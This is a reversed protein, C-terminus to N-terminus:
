QGNPGGSLDLLTDLFGWWGCSNKHNCSATRCNHPNLWFWVSPRACLPCRIRSAKGGAIRAELREAARERVGPDQNLRHQAIRRARDPRASVAPLTRRPEPRGPPPEPSVAFADVDVPIGDRFEYVAMALREEPCSPTFWVRALDRAMPDARGGLAANVGAWLGPYEAPLAPRSLPLVVRFCCDDPGGARHSHSSYLLYAWGRERLARVVARAQAAPLHDLDFVLATVAVVGDNGRRAGEAYIAFSVAAGSKTPRAVHRGLAHALTATRPLPRNDHQSAFTCYPVRVAAIEVRGIREARKGRAETHAATM